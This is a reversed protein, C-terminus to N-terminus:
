AVAAREDVGLSAAVDAAADLVADAHGARLLAVPELDGLDPDPTRLWTAITWASSPREVDYGARALVASLDDLVEFQWAPYVLRTRGSGDPALPLGLLAARHVRASVAQKTVGGLAARAGETDLFPGIDDSWAQGLGLSAAARHGAEVPSLDLAGNREILGRLQEEFASVSRRVYEEVPLPSTAAM